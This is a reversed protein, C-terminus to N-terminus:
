SASVGPPGGLGRARGNADYTSVIGLAACSTPPLQLAASRLSIPPEKTM